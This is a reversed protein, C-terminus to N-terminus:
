RWNWDPVTGAPAQALAEKLAEQISGNAPDKLLAAHLQNLGDTWQGLRLLAVAFNVRMPINQPALQVAARYKELAGALDGAKQLTAGENNLAVALVANQNAEDRKRLLDSLKRRIDEAEANKGNLRLAQQLANLTSQDDPNLRYAQELHEVAAQAKDAKLYEAGLRYQAVSDKPNLQVARELASLAGADDLLTKRAQGLDSWAEPFVSRIAIAKQLEAAAQANNNQATYVKALLYHAQAGDDGRGLLKIARELHQASSDLEASDLLAEGLNMQAVGFDPKMAVAKEFPERASKLDGSSSYAEGLANQAEASDPRLKVAESLQAISDSARGAETLLSGLLLHADADRPNDKLDAQLLEIAEDRHGGAALKWAQELSGTKQALLLGAFTLVIPIRMM